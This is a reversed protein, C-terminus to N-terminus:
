PKGCVLHGVLDPELSVGGLVGLDLEHSVTDQEPLCNDSIGLYTFQFKEM